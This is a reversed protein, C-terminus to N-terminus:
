VHKLGATEIRLLPRLHREVFPLPTDLAGTCPEAPATRNVFQQIQTVADALHNQGFLWGRFDPAGGAFLTHAEQALRREVFDPQAHRCQLLDILDCKDFAHPLRPFWGRITRPYRGKTM